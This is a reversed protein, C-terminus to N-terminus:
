ALLIDEEESEKEEFLQVWVGKKTLLFPMEKGCERCKRLEAAEIGSKALESAARQHLLPEYKHVHKMERGGEILLIGCTLRYTSRQKRCLSRLGTPTEAPAPPERQGTGM